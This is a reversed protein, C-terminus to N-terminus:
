RDRSMGEGGRVWDSGEARSERGVRETNGHLQRREGM